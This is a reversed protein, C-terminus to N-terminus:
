GALRRCDFENGPRFQGGLLIPVLQVNKPIEDVDFIGPEKQFDRLKLSDPLITNALDDLAEVSHIHRQFGFRNEVQCFAAGWTPGMHRAGQDFGAKAGCEILGKLPEKLLIPWSPDWFKFNRSRIGDFQDM